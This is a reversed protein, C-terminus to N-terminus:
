ALQVDGEGDGSGDGDGDGSGDGDGEGSGIRAGGGSAGPALRCVQILNATTACPVTSVKSWPAKTVLRAMKIPTSGSVTAIATEGALMRILTAM